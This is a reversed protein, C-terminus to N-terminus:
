IVGGAILEETYEDIVTQKQFSTITETSEQVMQYQAYEAPTMQREDYQWMTIKDGSVNDEVEVQAINKRLYVTNPSSYTDIELPKESQTGMVQTWDTM